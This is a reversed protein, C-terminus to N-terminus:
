KALFNLVIMFIIGSSIGALFIVFLFAMFGNDKEFNVGPHATLVKRKSKARGGEEYEGISNLDTPTVGNLLTQEDIDIDIIEFDDNSVTPSVPVANVPEPIPSAQTVTNSNGSIIKLNMIENLKQQVFGPKTFLNGLETLIAQQDIDDKKLEAAYYDALVNCQTQDIIGDGLLISLAKAINKRLEDIDNRLEVNNDM